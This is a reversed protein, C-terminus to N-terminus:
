LHRFFDIMAVNVDTVREQQTCHDCGPPMITQRLQPVFNALNAILRDIARLRSASSSTGTGTSGAKFGPAPSIDPMSISKPM